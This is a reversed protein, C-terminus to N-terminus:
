PRRPAGQHACMIWPHSSQPASLPDRTWTAMYTSQVIKEESGLKLLANMKGTIILTSDFMFGQVDLYELKKYVLSGENLKKFYSDFSDVDGTSHVYVIDPSLISKLKEFKSEILLSRRVTELKHALENSQKM